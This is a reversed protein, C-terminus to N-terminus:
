VRERCSARGIQANYYEGQGWTSAILPAVARFNRNPSFRSADVNYSGWLQTISTDARMNQTVIAHMQDNWSALMAQLQVPIEYENWNNQSSYGLIPIAANDAAVLVFGSPKLNVAYIYQSPYGSDLAKSDSVEYGLGMRETIFNQAVRNADTKSVPLAFICSAVILLLLMLILHKKM